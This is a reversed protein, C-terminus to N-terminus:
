KPKEWTAGVWHLVSDSLSHKKPMSGSRVTCRHSIALRTVSPRREFDYFLCADPLNYDALYSSTKRQATCSRANRLEPHQMMM